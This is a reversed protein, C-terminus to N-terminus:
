ILHTLGAIEVDGGLLPSLGKIFSITVLAAIMPIVLAPVMLKGITKALEFLFDAPHPTAGGTAGLLSIDIPEVGMDFIFPKGWLIIESMSAVCWRVPCHLKDDYSAMPWKGACVCDWPNYKDEFIQFDYQDALLVYMFPYITYIGIAIAILLGGLKRTFFFTRLILGLSLFIPFFADRVLVLFAAQAIYSTIWTFVFPFMLALSEVLMSVGAFLNFGWGWAAQSCTKPMGFCNQWPYTWYGTLAGPSWDFYKGMQALAAARMNINLMYDGQLITKTELRDVVCWAKQIHYECFQKDPPCIKEYYCPDSPDETVFARSAQSTFNALFYVFGIIFALMFASALAQYLENKAWATIQPQRFAVGLMYALSVIFLSVLVAAMAVAQWGYKTTWLEEFSASTGPIGPPAAALAIPAALLFIFAAVAIKAFGKM